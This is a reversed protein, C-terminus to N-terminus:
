IQWKRLEKVENFEHEWNIYKTIINRLFQSRNLNNRKCFENFEKCLDEDLRISLTNTKKM